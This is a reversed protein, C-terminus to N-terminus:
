NKGKRTFSKILRRDKKSPRKSPALTNGLRFLRREERQKERAAISAETEEYLTQAVSAPGRRTSLGLVIVTFEIKNRTICLEDGVGVGKAAKVRIGNLHVHGGSVAKAAMSRTKFFRAAWLWKDIRVKTDVNNQM